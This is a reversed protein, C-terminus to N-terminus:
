LIRARPRKALLDQQETVLYLVGGIQVMHYPLNEVWWESSKRQQGGVELEQQRTEADDHLILHPMRLTDGVDVLQLTHEFGHELLRQLVRPVFVDSVVVLLDDHSVLCDRIPHLPHNQESCIAASGQALLLKRCALLISSSVNDVAIAITISPPNCSFQSSGDDKRGRSSRADFDNRAHPPLSRGTQSGREGIVHRKTATPIALPKVRDERFDISTAPQAHLHVHVERVHQVALVDLGHHGTEHSDDGVIRSLESGTSRTDEFNGGGNGCAISARAVLGDAEHWWTEVMVQTDLCDKVVVMCEHAM